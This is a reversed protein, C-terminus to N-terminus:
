LYLSQCTHDDFDPWRTLILLVPIFIHVFALVIVTDVSLYMTYLPRWVACYIVTSLPCHVSNKFLM